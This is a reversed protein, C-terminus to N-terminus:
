YIVAFHKQPLEHSSILSVIHGDISGSLLFNTIYGKITQKTIAPTPIIILFRMTVTRGRIANAPNGPKGIKKWKSM